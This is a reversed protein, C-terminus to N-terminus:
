AAVRSIQTIRAPRLNDTRLEEPASFNPEDPDPQIGDAWGLFWLRTVGTVDELQEALENIRDPVNRGTEWASYTGAKVGLQAAFTEQSLNRERRVKRLREALTWQPPRVRLRTVNSMAPTTTM